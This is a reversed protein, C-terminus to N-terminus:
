NFMFSPLFLGRGFFKSWSRHESLVCVFDILDVYNQAEQM